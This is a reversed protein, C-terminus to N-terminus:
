MGIDLTTLAPDESLVTDLLWQYYLIFQNRPPGSGDIQNVSNNLFHSYRALEITHSSREQEEPNAGEYNGINM